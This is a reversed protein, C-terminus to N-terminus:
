LHFVDHQLPDPRYDELQMTSRLLPVLPAQVYYTELNYFDYPYHKSYLILIKSSLYNLDVTYPMILDEKNLDGWYEFLAERVGLLDLDRTLLVPQPLPDEIVDIKGICIESIIDIVRKRTLISNGLNYEFQSNIKKVSNSLLEDKQLQTIKERMKCIITKFISSFKKSLLYNSLWNYLDSLSVERLSTYPCNIIDYKKINYKDCVTTLDKKIEQSILNNQSNGINIRIKYLIECLIFFCSILEHEKITDERETDVSDLIDSIKKEDLKKKNMILILPFIGAMGATIVFPVFYDGWAVAFNHTLLSHHTENLISQDGAVFGSKYFSFFVSPIYLFGIAIFLLYQIISTTPNDNQIQAKIYKYFKDKKPLLVDCNDNSLIERLTYKRDTYGRKFKADVLEFLGSHFVSHKKSAVPLGNGVVSPM